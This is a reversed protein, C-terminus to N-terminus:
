EKGDLEIMGERVAYAAAQVRNELHLKELINRLHNKVTNETIFLQVAIEKNTAGKVVLQLVEKERSSLVSAKSASPPTEERQSLTAFEKLIRNAMARTIPAENRDLGSLMEFLQEPELNKLLYGQAGAKIADFLSQDDDSVTLMVIKVDQMEHKILQTAELGGCGPMQIDMLILDPKLQRAQELAEHGDSAEGVVEVQEWSSLLSALGKRFLVHDDVLLVRKREM